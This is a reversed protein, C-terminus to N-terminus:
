KNIEELYARTFVYDPVPQTNFESFILMTNKLPDTGDEIYLSVPNICKDIRAFKLYYVTYEVLGKSNIVQKKLPLYEKQTIWLTLSPWPHLEQIASCELVYVNQSDLTDRNNKILVYKKALGYNGLDAITAVSNSINQRPTSLSFGEGYPNYIWVEDQKQLYARGKLCQPEKQLLLLLGDRDRRFYYYQEVDEWETDRNKIVTLIATMDTASFFNNEIEALLNLDNKAEARILFFPIIAAIFFVYRIRSM